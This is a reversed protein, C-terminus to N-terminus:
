RSQHSPGFFRLRIIHIVYILGLKIVASVSESSSSTGHPRQYYLYPVEKIRLKNLNCEYAFEIFYEGFVTNSNISVKQLVDSKLAIFGSTYDTLHRGLTLQAFVNLLYSLFSRWWSRLDKGPAIYRTGIAVDHDSLAALLRPIDEPPIGLDCDLWVILSGKANRTGVALASALGRESMRCILSVHPYRKQRVLESTGDPSNDDVVIIELLDDGVSDTIREVAEIISERENYSPLVVSIFPKGHNRARLDPSSLCSSM